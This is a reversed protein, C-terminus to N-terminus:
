RRVYWTGSAGDFGREYRAHILELLEPSRDRIVSESLDSVVVYPPPSARLDRRLEQWARADFKEPGWGHLPLAQPREARLLVVPDGLVYLPGPLVAESRLQELDQDAAEYAPNWSQQFGTRSDPTLAFDHEALVRVKNAPAVALLGVSLALLAM